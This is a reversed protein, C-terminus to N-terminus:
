ALTQVLPLCGVNPSLEGSNVQGINSWDGVGDPLQGDMPIPALKQHSSTRGSWDAASKSQSALIRKLLLQIEVEM